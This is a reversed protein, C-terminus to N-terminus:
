VGAPNDGTTEVDCRGQGRTLNMFQDIFDAQFRAPLALTWRVGDADFEEALVRVDSASFRSQVLALDSFPCRCHIRVEEVIQIKDALRLCQAACGGYARMLGGTGLKTGGFWRIVLVVVRDCQQGQIAQLIPRGATGGPEGDDHFRYTDGISYAWCNHTADPVSHAAIFAMAQDPSQVASALTLFRSKRIEEEWSAPGALTYLTM